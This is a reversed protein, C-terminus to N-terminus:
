PQVQIWYGGCPLPHRARENADYRYAGAREITWVYGAPDANYLKPLGPYDSDDQNGLWGIIWYTGTSM